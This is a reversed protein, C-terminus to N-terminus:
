DLYVCYLKHLPPSSGAPPPLAPPPHRFVARGHNELSVVSVVAQDADFELKGGRKDPNVADVECCDIQQWEITPPCCDHAADASEIAMACPLLVLNLWCAFLVAVGKRSVRQESRQGFM